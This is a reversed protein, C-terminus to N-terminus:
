PRSLNLPPESFPNRRPGNKNANCDTSNMQNAPQNQLAVNVDYDANTSSKGINDLLQVLRKDQASEEPDFAISPTSSVSFTEQLSTRTRDQQDNSELYKALQLTITREQPDNLEM